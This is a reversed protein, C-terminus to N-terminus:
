FQATCDIILRQSKKIFASRISKSWLNDFIRSYLKNRQDFIHFTLIHATCNIIKRQEQKIFASPISKSLLNDFITSYLKNKQDFIHFTLIQATCNIIKQQKQKIFLRDFVRLGMFQIIFYYVQNCGVKFKRLRHLNWNKTFCWFHLDELLNPLM